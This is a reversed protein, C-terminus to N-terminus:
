KACVIKLILESTGAPPIDGWRDKLDNYSYLTDGTAMAASHASISLTRYAKAKCNYESLIRTSVYGNKHRQKHGQVEWVKRLSGDKRISQLDIYFQTGDHAGESVKTWEAMASAGATALLCALIIKKMTITTQM